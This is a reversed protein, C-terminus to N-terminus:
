DLKAERLERIITSAGRPDQGLMNFVELSLEDNLALIALSYRGPEKEAQDLVVSFCEGDAHEVFGGVFVHYHGGFSLQPRVRQFGESYRARADRVHLREELSMSFGNSSLFDDLEHFDFPADHGFLVHVPEDGLKNLDDDNILEQLWWSKGVTRRRMDASGAGGLFGLILKNNTQVRVGRPVHIIRERLPRLGTLSDVKYREIRDFDEHNGDVWFLVSDTQELLKNLKDLKRGLKQDGPWLLGFDGLQLFVNVGRNNFITSAQKLANVDGHVDGILGLEAASQLRQLANLPTFQAM